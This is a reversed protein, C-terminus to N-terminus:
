VIQQHYKESLLKLDPIGFMNALETFKEQNGEGFRKAYERYSDFSNFRPYKSHFKDAYMVLKEEITEAIYDKAPLPLSRKIIQEKAIGVGTHRETMRCLEEPLGEEKLIKYGEIGHKIYNKEDFAGKEDIFRYAGIDHLFAGDKVLDNELVLKNRYILQEAIEWVIQCHSFVLELAYKGAAYKSHLLKAQAIDM